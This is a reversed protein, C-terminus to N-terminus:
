IKPYLALHHVLLSWQIDGEVPVGFKVVVCLFCKWLFCFDSSCECFRTKVEYQGFFCQVPYSLCGQIASVVEEEDGMCHSHPTSFNTHKPYSSHLLQSIEWQICQLLLFCFWASSLQHGCMSPANLGDRALPSNGMEATPVQTRALGQWQPSLYAPTRFLSLLCSLGFPSCTRTSLQARCWHFQPCM